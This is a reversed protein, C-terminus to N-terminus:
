FEWSWVRHSDLVWVRKLLTTLNPNNFKQDCLTNHLKDQGCQKGLWSIILMLLPIFTCTNLFKWRYELLIQRRKDDEDTEEHSNKRIRKVGTRMGHWWQGSLMDKGHILMEEKGKSLCIYYTKMDTCKNGSLENVM